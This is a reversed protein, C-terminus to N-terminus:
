TPWALSNPPRCEMNTLGPFCRMLTPKGPYRVKSVSIFKSAPCFDSTLVSSTCPLMWCALGSILGCYVCPGNRTRAFSQKQGSNVVAECNASQFRSPLTHGDPWVTNEFDQNASFWVIPREGKGILLTAPRICRTELISPLHAHKTYHWRLTSM